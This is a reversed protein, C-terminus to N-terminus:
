ARALLGGLAPASVECIEADCDLLPDLGVAAARDNITEIAGSAMLGLSRAMAALEAMEWSPRVSLLEILERYPDTRDPVSDDDPLVVDPVAPEVEDDAFVTDLVGAIEATQQQVLRLYAPDLELREGLESVPPNPIRHTAPPAADVIRAPGQRTTLHHLDSHLQQDSLGMAQYLRTLVRVEDPAIHGDIGAVTVLFRGTQQAQDPALQALRKRADNLTAPRHGLWALHARMRRAELASLGYARTVQEFIAREEAPMITGDARAVLSCLGLMGIAGDLNRAPLTRDGDLRYLGVRTSDVFAKRHTAPDPELGYGLREVLRSIAISQKQSPRAGLEPFHDLLGSVDILGTDQGQLSGALFASLPAVSSFRAIDGLETPLYALASPSAGPRGNGIARSYDDLQATVREAIERLQLQPKRLHSVDPLARTGLSVTGNFGASAPRYVLELTRKPPEVIMGEGFQGQYAIRFLTTFEQKCRKAPTRLRTDPDCHLWSLAWVPPIPQRNAAFTGLAVRTALPLEWSGDPMPPEIERPDVEGKMLLGAVLFESAYGQFSRQDPYLQKLREVEHLLVPIEARAASDHRADFLVRRELGYFFLFVYGIPAGAPRGAALWDLYAARSEPRLDSYSPWYSLYVGSTDPNSRAIPLSPDILAPDTGRHGSVSDLRSGLYFMGGPITRGAVKATRGAPHWVSRSQAVLQEPSPPAPISYRVRPHTDIVQVPHPSASMSKKAKSKSAGSKAAPRPKKQSVRKKKPKKTGFISGLLSGLLSM